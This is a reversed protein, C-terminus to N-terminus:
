PHASAGMACRRSGIGRRTGQLLADRDARVRAVGVQASEAATREVDGGGVGAVIHEVLEAREVPEHARGAGPQLVDLRVTGQVHSGHLIATDGRGDRFGHCLEIVTESRDTVQQGGPLHLGQVAGRHRHARASHTHM